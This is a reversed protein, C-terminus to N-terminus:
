FASLPTPSNGPPGSLQNNGLSYVTGGGVLGIAGGLDDAFRSSGVIASANGGSQQNAKIGVGGNTVFSDRIVNVKANAAGSIVVLGNGGNLSMSSDSIGLLVAGGFSGDAHVGDGPNSQILSHNISAYVTGGNPAIAVGINSNNTVTTDKIELTMTTTPTANIGYGFGQIVCNQITVRLASKIQVGGPSANLGDIDLGSLYVVDTSGAQITIGSTASALVGAEGATGCLISISKTITLLGFGGPDLCNIEGRVATQALAAAFTLCPSTRTCPNSDSGLTTASVWTVPQYTFQDAASIPSTGASTTVTVNVTGSGTPPTATIQTASNVTFPAGNPGFSVSTVNVFGTGTIIVSTGNLTIGTITPLSPLCTATVLDNNEPDVAIGNTLDSSVVTYTTQVNGSAPVTVTQLPGFTAAAFTSGHYFGDTHSTRDSSSLTLTIQDGIAWAFLISSSSAGLTTNLNFAGSNVASCSASAQVPAVMAAYLGIAMGVCSVPRALSRWVPGHNSKLL